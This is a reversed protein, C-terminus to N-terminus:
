FCEYDAHLHPMSSLCCCGQLLQHLAQMHRQADCM